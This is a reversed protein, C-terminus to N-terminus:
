FKKMVNLSIPQQIVFSFSLERMKLTNFDCHVISHRKQSIKLRFEIEDQSGDIM